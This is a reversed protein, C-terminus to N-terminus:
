FYDFYDAQTFYIRFVAQIVYEGSQISVFPMKELVLRGRIERPKQQLFYSKAAKKVANEKAQDYADLLPLLETQSFLDISSTGTSRVGDAHVSLRKQEMSSLDYRFWASMFIEDREIDFVSIKKPNEPEIQASWEFRSKIKRDNHTPYYVFTRGYIMDSFFASAYTFLANLSEHQTKPESIRGETFRPDSIKGQLFPQSWGSLPFLLLLLLAVRNIKM